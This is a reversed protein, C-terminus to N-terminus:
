PYEGTVEATRAPWLGIDNDPEPKNAEIIANYLESREVFDKAMKAAWVHCPTGRGETYTSLAPATYSDEIKCFGDTHYRCDYHCAPVGHKNITTTADDIELISM